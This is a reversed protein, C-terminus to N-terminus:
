VPLEIRDLINEYMDSTRSLMRVASRVESALPTLAEDPTAVPEERPPEDRLVSALRSLMNSELEGARALAEELLEMQMAVEPKRAIRAGADTTQGSM